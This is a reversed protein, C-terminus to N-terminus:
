IWTTHSDEDSIDVEPRHVQNDSRIRPFLEAQHYPPKPHTGGWESPIESVPGDGRNTGPYPDPISLWYPECGIRRREACQEIPEFHRRCRIAKRVM